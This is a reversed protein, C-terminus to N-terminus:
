LHTSSSDLLLGNRRVSDLPLGVGRHSRVRSLVARKWRANSRWLEAPRLTKGTHVTSRRTQGRAPPASTLFRLLQGARWSLRMVLWYMGSVPSMTMPTARPKVPAPSTSYRSVGSTSAPAMSSRLSSATMTFLRPRRTSAWSLPNLRASDNSSRGRARARHPCMSFSNSSVWRSFCIASARAMACRVICLSWPM